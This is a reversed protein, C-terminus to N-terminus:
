RCCTDGDKIERNCFPCYGLKYFTQQIDNEVKKMEKLFKEQQIRSEEVENIYKELMRTTANITICESNLRELTQLKKLYDIMLVHDFTDISELKNLMNILKDIHSKYVDVEKYNELIENLTEMHHKAKRYITKDENIFELQILTNNLRDVKKKLEISEETMNIIAEAKLRFRVVNKLRELTQQHESNNKKLRKIEGKSETLGSKLEDIIIEQDGMGTASNLLRAAAGGTSFIIYHVDHQKQWNIEKFNFLERVPEPVGTGFAKLPKGNNLYYKNKTRKVTNGSDDKLQILLPNDTLDSQYLKEGGRPSNEILLYLARILTTKGAESEGIIVNLGPGFKIVRKIHQGFGEVILETFHM